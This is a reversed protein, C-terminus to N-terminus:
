LLEMYSPVESLFNYSQAAYDVKCCYMELGNTIFFYNVKLILNYRAAQHFTKETIQVNPAKCEVLLVAEGQRSFVVLDFRKALKNLSIQKEVGIMSLPVQRSNVLFAIVHQRVWEEPTLAVNKKRVLDFIMARGNPLSSMRFLYEPFNLKLM